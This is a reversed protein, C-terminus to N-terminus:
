PQEFLVTQGHEALYTMVNTYFEQNVPTWTYGQARLDHVGQVYVKLHTLASKRLGAIDEARGSDLAQISYLYEGAECEAVFQGDKLQDNVMEDGVCWWRDAQHGGPERWM